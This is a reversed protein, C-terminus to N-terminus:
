QLSVRNSNFTKRIIRFIKPFFKLCIKKYNNALFGLLIVVNEKNFLSIHVNDIIRSLKGLILKFDDVKPYKQMLQRIGNLGTEVTDYSNLKELQTSLKDGLEMLRLKKKRSKLM